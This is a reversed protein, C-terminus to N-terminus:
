NNRFLSLFIGYIKYFSLKVKWFFFSSGQIPSQNEISNWFKIVLKSFSKDNTVTLCIEFMMSSVYQKVKVDNCWCKLLNTVFEYLIYMTFEKLITIYNALM